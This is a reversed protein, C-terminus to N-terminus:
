PCECYTLLVAVSVFPLGTCRNRLSAVLIQCNPLLGCSLPSCLSLPSYYILFCQIYESAEVTVLFYLIDLLFHTILYQFDM